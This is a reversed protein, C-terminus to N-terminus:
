YVKSVSSIALDMDAVPPYNINDSNFSDSVFSCLQFLFADRLDATASLNDVLGLLKSM